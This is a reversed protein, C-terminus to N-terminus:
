AGEMARCLKTEAAILKKSKKIGTHQQIRDFLAKVELKTFAVVILRDDIHYKRVAM